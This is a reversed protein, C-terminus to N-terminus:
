SACGRSNASVTIVVAAKSGAEPHIQPTTPTCGHCTAKASERTASSIHPSSWSM